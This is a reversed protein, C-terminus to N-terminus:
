KDKDDQKGRRILIAAKVLDSHYNPLVTLLNDLLKKAVDLESHDIADYLKRIRNKIEGDEKDVGMFQELILNSDLGYLSNMVDYQLMRENKRFRFINADEIEGLVQPSHTTIIFQINPFTKQLNPIIRRQWSPHLHLEIEDILVIGSTDLPRKSMPNAIAMRRALDGVMALLCKEGDSLSSVEINQNEKTIIMRLRPSRSVRLDSFGPLFDYIADQVAKLQYNTYDFNNRTKNENVIDEQNRYWEFFTRFDTNSSLCNEYATIINFEDHGNRIRLPVDFVARHVGYNIFVPAPINIDYVMDSFKSSIIELNTNNNWKDKRRDKRIDFHFIEGGINIEVEITSRSAGYTIDDDSITLVSNLRKKVALKNMIPYFITTLATMLTTKGTGNEGYLVTNKGDLKLTLDNIGKYNKIYVSNLEM